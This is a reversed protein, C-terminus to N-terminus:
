SNFIASGSNGPMTDTDHSIYKGAPLTDPFALPPPAPPALDQTEGLDPPPGGLAASKGPDATASLDPLGSLAPRAGLAPPVIHHASWGAPVIGGTAIQLPLGAPFGIIFLEEGPRIAGTKRFDAPTRKGAVARDLRFITIDGQKDHHDYEHFLVEKCHYLSEA